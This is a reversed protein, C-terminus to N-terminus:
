SALPFYPISWGRYGTRYKYGAVGVHGNVSTGIIKGEGLSVVIHGTGASNHYWVLAGRPPVGTTHMRGHSVMWDGGQEATSWGAGNQWGYALRQFKLCWGEYATSGRHKWQWSIASNKTRPNPRPSVGAYNCKDVVFDHSGTAVYTDPVFGGNDLMDWIKSAGKPGSVEPGTQQCLIKVTAGPKRKAVILRKLGPASRVNLETKKLVTGNKSALVAHATDTTGVLVTATATAVLAVLATWRSFRWNLTAEM